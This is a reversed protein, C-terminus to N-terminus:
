SDRGAILTVQLEDLDDWRGEAALKAQDPWTKPNHMRYRDGARRLVDKLHNVEAGALAEFTFIQDDNLLKEIKPGIGEIIKLDDRKQTTGATEAAALRRNWEAELRAIESQCKMARLAWGILFGFLAALLLCLLMQTILYTM